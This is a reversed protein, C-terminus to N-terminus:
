KFRRTDKKKLTKILCFSADCVAASLRAQFSLLNFKAGALIVINGYLPFINSFMWVPEFRNWLGKREVSNLVRRWKKTPGGSKSTLSVIKSGQPATIQYNRANNIDVNCLKRYNWKGSRLIYFYLEKFQLFESPYSREANWSCIFQFLRPKFYHDREM